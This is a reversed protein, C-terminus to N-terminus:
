KTPEPPRTINFFILKKRHREWPADSEVRILGLMPTATTEPQVTIEYDRGAIHEKIDVKIGPRSCETTTIKVPTDGQIKCRISKPTPTEGVQWTLQAPQFDYIKPITITVSLTTEPQAEDDTRVVIQKTVDGEFTGLSFKTEIVGEEGPKFIKQDGRAAAHLCSCYSQIETITITREGTVKFKFEVPLETDTHTAIKKTASSAFEMGAHLRLTMIATLLFILRLM